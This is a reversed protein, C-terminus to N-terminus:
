VRNIGDQWHILTYLTNFLVLVVRKQIIAMLRTQGQQNIIRVIIRTVFFDMTTLITMHLLKQALWLSVMRILDPHRTSKPPQM